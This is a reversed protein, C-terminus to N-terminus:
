ETLPHIADIIDHWGGYPLPNTLSFFNPLAQGYFIGTCALRAKPLYYAHRFAVFVSAVCM